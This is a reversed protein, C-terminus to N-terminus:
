ESSVKFVALPAMRGVNLSLTSGDSTYNDVKTFVRLFDTEDIPMEMCAKKTSVMQAFRIRKGEELTYSGSFVNCGSYGSVRNNASNLIFHIKQDSTNSQDIEAGGFKILEWSQDTIITLSSKSDNDMGKNSKKSSSCGMAILTFLIVVFLTTKM